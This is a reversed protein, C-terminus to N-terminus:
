KAEVNSAGSTDITGLTPNGLYYVNSAGSAEADLRGSINVTVNSAGSADINADGALFDELKISSAGSAGIKLNGSSGTLRVNSAGSADIGADGAEIDGQLSSAGSVDVVLDEDSSFGSISTFSAGSLDLATLEPMSVEAELTANKVRLTFDPKLGIKLTDGQKEVLLRDVLNDDVRITVNYSDAQTIEVNFSHSVDVKDFDTIAPEQTVINGSGTITEASFSPLELSCALSATILVAAILIIRSNM